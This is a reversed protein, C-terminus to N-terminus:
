IERDVKRAARDIDRVQQRSEKRQTDKKEKEAAEKAAQTQAGM